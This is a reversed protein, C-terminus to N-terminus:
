ALNWHVNSPVSARDEPLRQRGSDRDRARPAGARGGCTTATATAGSAYKAGGRTAPASASAAADAPPWEPRQNEHHDRVLRQRRRYDHRDVRM